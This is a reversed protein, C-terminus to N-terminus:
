HQLCKVLYEQNELPTLLPQKLQGPEKVLLQGQRWQISCYSYRNKQNEQGQPTLFHRKNRSSIISAEM